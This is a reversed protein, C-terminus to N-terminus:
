VQFPSASIASDCKKKPCDPRHKQDPKLWVCWIKSM